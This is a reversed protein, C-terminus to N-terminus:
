FFHREIQRASLINEKL